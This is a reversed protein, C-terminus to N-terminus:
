KSLFQLYIVGIYYLFYRGLRRYKKTHLVLRAFRQEAQRGKEEGPGQRGARSQVAGGGKQLLTPQGKSPNEFGGRRNPVTDKVSHVNDKQQIGQLSLKLLNAWHELCIYKRMCVNRAMLGSLLCPFFLALSLCACITCGTGRASM